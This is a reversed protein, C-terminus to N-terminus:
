ERRLSVIQNRRRRVSNNSDMLVGVVQETVTFRGNNKGMVSVVVCSRFVNINTVVKNTVYYFRASDLKDITRRVVHRSVRKSFIPLACTQVGTM